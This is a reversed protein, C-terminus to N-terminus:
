NVQLVEVVPNSNSPSPNPIEPTPDIKGGLRLLPKKLYVFFTNKLQAKDAEPTAPMPYHQQYYEFKDELEKWLDKQHAFKRDDLQNICRQMAPFDPEHAGAFRDLEKVIECAIADFHRNLRYRTVCYACYISISSACVTLPLIGKGLIRYSVVTIVGASGTGLALITYDFTELPAINRDHWPKFVPKVEAIFHGTGAAIAQRCALLAQSGMRKAAILPAIVYRTFLPFSTPEAVPASPSAM